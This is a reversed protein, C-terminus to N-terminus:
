WDYFKGEEDMWMVRMGGLQRRIADPAKSYESYDILGIRYDAARKLLPLRGTQDNLPVKSVYLLQPDPPGIYSTLGDLKQVSQQMFRAGVLLDNVSFRKSTDLLQWGRRQRAWSVFAENIRTLDEMKVYDDGREGVRKAIVSDPATVVLRFAGISQLWKEIYVWRYASLRSEGRYIPGYVLESVHWRDLITLSRKDMRDYTLSTMYEDFPDRSAPLPGRHFIRVSDLRTNDTFKITMDEALTSKGASDVGELVVLM